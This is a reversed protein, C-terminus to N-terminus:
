EKLSMDVYIRTLRRDFPCSICLVSSGVQRKLTEDHVQSIMQHCRAHMQMRKKVAAYRETRQKHPSAELCTRTSKRYFKLDNVDKVTVFPATQLSQSLFTWAFIPSKETSYVELLPIGLSLPNRCINGPWKWFPWGSGSRIQCLAQKGVEGLLTPEWAEPTKSNRDTFFPDKRQAM